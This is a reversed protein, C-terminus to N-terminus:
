NAMREGVQADLGEKLVPFLNGLGSSTLPRDKLGVQHSAADTLVDVGKGKPMEDGPRLADADGRLALYFDLETTGVCSEKELAALPLRESEVDSHVDPSLHDIPDVSPGQGLPFCLYFADISVEQAVEAREERLSCHIKTVDVEWIGEELAALM